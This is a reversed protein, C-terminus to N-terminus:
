LVGAKLAQLSPERVFLRYLNDLVFFLHGLDPLLDRVHHDVEDAKGVFEIDIDFLGDEIFDFQVFLFVRHVQRSVICNLVILALLKECPSLPYPDSQPCSSGSQCAQASVRERHIGSGSIMDSHLFRRRSWM